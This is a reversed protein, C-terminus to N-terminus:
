FIVLQWAATITRFDAGIRTAAGASFAFKLSQRAGIPLTWTAGLRLNRQLDSKNGGDVSTRGGAYWTGNVALWARRGLTYSVHGQLGVIPDQHRTSTGPYYSENDTFLWVGAYADFTWRGSPHSLGIEPKFSWRNSGLNVLKASDYQGVPPVVSLSAGVITRRPARVFDAPRMAPSGSLIVSLRLRPDALGRRSIARRGEGVEGSAEGWTVPLAGLFLAQKGALAFTQGLGLGLIGVTAEVDTIPLSPDTFVSGSSRTATVVVFTTGVPSPSYARPELEQAVAPAVALLAATAALFPIRM